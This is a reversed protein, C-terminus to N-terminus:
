YSGPSKQARLYFASLTVLSIYAYVGYVTTEASLTGASSKKESHPCFSQGQRNILSSNLLNVFGVFYTQNVFAKRQASSSEYTQNKLDM